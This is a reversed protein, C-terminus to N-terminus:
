RCARGLATVVRDQDEVTMEHYMPLVLSTASVEESNPLGAPGARWTEPPYAPECHANAPGRRTAIGDDLMRQM